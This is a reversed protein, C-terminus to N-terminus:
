SRVSGVGEDELVSRLIKISVPEGLMEEAIEQTRKMTNQLVLKSDRFIVVRSKFAPNKVLKYIQLTKTAIDSRPSSKGM